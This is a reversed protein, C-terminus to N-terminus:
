AEHEEGEELKPRVAAGVIVGHGRCVRWTVASDHTVFVTSDGAIIGSANSTFQVIPNHKSFNASHLTRWRQSTTNFARQM